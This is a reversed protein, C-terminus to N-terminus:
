VLALDRIPHQRNDLVKIADISALYTWLLRVIAAPHKVEARDSGVKAARTAPYEWKDANYLGEPGPTALPHTNALHGGSDPM